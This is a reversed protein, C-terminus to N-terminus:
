MSLEYKANMVVNIAINSVFVCKFITIQKKLVDTKRGVGLM